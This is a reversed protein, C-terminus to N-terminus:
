AWPLLRQHGLLLDFRCDRQRDRSGSGGAYWDTLTTKGQAEALCQSAYLGAVYWAQTYSNHELGASVEEWISYDAEGFGNPQINALIWDAAKKVAPWLDSLFQTNATLAYHRYVAYIFAGISDYEPEVFAVYSSDWMNYTTKWTGESGQVGALWRM